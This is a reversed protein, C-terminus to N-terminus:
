RGNADNDGTLRAMRMSRREVAAAGVPSGLDILVDVSDDNVSSM